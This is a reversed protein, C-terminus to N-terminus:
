LREERLRKGSHKVHGKGYGISRRKRFRSVDSLVNLVYKKFENLSRVIINFSGFSSDNIDILDILDRFFGLINRDCPIYAAFAYLLRKKLYKLSRNGGHRGLASPFMGMLFKYLYIRRIDEKYASAREASQFFYYLLSRAFLGYAKACLHLCLM